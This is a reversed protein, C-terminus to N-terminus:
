PRDTEKMKDTDCLCYKTGCCIKIGVKSPICNGTILTTIYNVSFTIFAFCCAAAAWRVVRSVVRRKLTRTVARNRRRWAARAQVTRTAARLQEADLKPPTMGDLAYLEDIRRDIFGPDIAAADKELEAKVEEILSNRKQETM